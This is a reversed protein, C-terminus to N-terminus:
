ENKIYNLFSTEAPIEMSFQAGGEKRNEVTITGGHAEVFGKAISLGLGTGGTKSEPLRYFKEFLHTLEKEPIGPGNDSITIVCKEDKPLVTIRILADPPTYQIANHVINFIVQEILGADLKFLPLNQDPEYTIRNQEDPGLKQLITYILESIDCWDRKVKLMGSELRSMHLLNEVQRNLRTGAIEIEAILTAKVHVPLISENDKLTDAATLITSIPTKLEHSLSNFLTNYLHIAKEKEEKDRAKREQVKIKYTLVANVM